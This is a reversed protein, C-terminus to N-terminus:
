ATLMRSVCQQCAVVVSARLMHSAHQEIIILVKVRDDRNGSVRLFM